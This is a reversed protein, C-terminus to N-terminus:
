EGLCASIEDAFEKASGQREAPVKSLARLCIPELERQLPTMMAPDVFKGIPPAPEKVLKDLIESPKDSRFPPRGAISEYLLIGLSYVDARHDITALGKAHEP